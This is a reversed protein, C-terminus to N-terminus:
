LAVVRCATFVVWLLCLLTCACYKLVSLTVATKEFSRSGKRVRATLIDGEVAVAHAYLHSFARVVELGHYAGAQVTDFATWCRQIESAM